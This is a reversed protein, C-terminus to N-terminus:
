KGNTGAEMVSELDDFVNVTANYERATLDMYVNLKEKDIVQDVNAGVSRAFALFPILISGRAEIEQDLATLYGRLTETQPMIPIKSNENSM